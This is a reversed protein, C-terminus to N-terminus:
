AFAEHLQKLRAVLAQPSYPIPPVAGWVPKPWAPDTEFRAIVHVHLQPVMNGLAAVNIKAPNFLRELTEGAFAIEEMLEVRQSASLQHIERIEALEPVLILWPWNSDNLLLLRSLGLIKVPITDAELRPHLKFGV